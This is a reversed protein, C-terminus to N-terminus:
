TVLADSFRVEWISAMGNDVDEVQREPICAWCAELQAKSAIISNAVDSADAVLGSPQHSELQNCSANANGSTPMQMCSGKAALSNVSGQTM